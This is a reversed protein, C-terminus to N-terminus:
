SNFTKAPQTKSHMAVIMENRDQQVSISCGTCLYVYLIYMYPPYVNTFITKGAEFLRRVYICVFCPCFKRIIM